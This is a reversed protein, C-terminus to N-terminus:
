TNCTRYYPKPELAQHAMAWFCMEPSWPQLGTHARTRSIARSARPVPESPLFELFGPEEKGKADEEDEERGRGRRWWDEPGEGMQHVLPRKDRPDKHRERPCGRQPRIPSDHAHCLSKSRLRRPNSLAALPHPVNPLCALPSAGM